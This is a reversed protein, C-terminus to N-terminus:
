LLQLALSFHGAYVTCILRSYTWSKYQAYFCSPSEAPRKWSCGTLRKKKKKLFVSSIFPLYGFNIVNRNNM